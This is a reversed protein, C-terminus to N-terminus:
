KIGTHMGVILYLIFFFPRYTLGSIQLNDINM